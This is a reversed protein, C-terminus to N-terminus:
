TTGARAVRGVKGANGGAIDAGSDEVNEFVGMGNMLELMDPILSLAGVIDLLCFFTCVYKRNSLAALVLEFTFFVFVLGVVALTVPDTSRPLFAITFDFALLSIVTAISAVANYTNSKLCGRVKEIHPPRVAPGTEGSGSTMANLADSGQEPDFAYAGLPVTTSTSVTGRRLGSRRRCCCCCCCHRRCSLRVAGYCRSPSQTCTM